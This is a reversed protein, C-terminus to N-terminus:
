ATRLSESRFRSRPGHVEYLRASNPDKTMHWCEHGNESGCALFAGGFTRRDLCDESGRFRTVTVILFDGCGPCVGNRTVRAHRDRDIRNASKDM